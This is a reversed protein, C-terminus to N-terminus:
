RSENGHKEIHHIIHTQLRVQATRSQALNGEMKGVIRKITESQNKSLRVIDRGLIQLLDHTMPHDREWNILDSDTTEHHM